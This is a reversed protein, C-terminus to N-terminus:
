TGNAALRSHWGEVIAQAHGAIDMLRGLSSM